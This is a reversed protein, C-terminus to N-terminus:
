GGGTQKANPLPNPVGIDESRRTFAVQVTKGNLTLEGTLKRLEKPENDHGVRATGNRPWVFSIRGIVTGYPHQKSVSGKPIILASVHGKAYQFEWLAVVAVSAGHSSSTRLELEGYFWMPEAQIQLAMDLLGSTIHATRSVSSLLFRGQIPLDYKQPMLKNEPPAPIGVNDETTAKATGGGALIGVMVAGVLIALAAYGLTRVGVASRRTRASRLARLFVLTKAMYPGM